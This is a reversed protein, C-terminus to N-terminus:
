VDVKGPRARQKGGKFPREAKVKKLANRRPQDVVAEDDAGEEVEEVSEVKKVNVQEPIGAALQELDAVKAKLELIEAAAENQAEAAAEREIKNVNGDVLEDEQEPVVKDTDADQADWTVPEAAEPEPVPAHAAPKAQKVKRGKGGKVAADDFRAVGAGPRAVKAKQRRRYGPLLELEEFKRQLGGEGHLLALDDAGGISEFDILINPVTRRGTTRQLITQLANMDAALDTDVCCALYTLSM